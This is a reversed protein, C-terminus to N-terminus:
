GLKKIARIAEEADKMSGAKQLLVKAAILADLNLGNQAASRAAKAAAIRKGRRRRRFGAAFLTKSVLTSSVEVGADRLKAIIDRPRVRKGLERATRRIQEARSVPSSDAARKVGANAKSRRGKRRLRGARLTMSDQPGSVLIGKEKLAAVVDRRRANKGLAKATQRIAEAKNVKNTKANDTPKAKAM